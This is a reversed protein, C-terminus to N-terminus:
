VDKEETIMIEFTLSTSGGNEPSFDRNRGIQAFKRCATRIQITHIGPARPYV